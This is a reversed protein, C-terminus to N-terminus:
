KPILITHTESWTPPPTHGEAVLNFVNALIPSLLLKFHKYFAYTFGDPGPASSPQKDNIAALIQSTHIPLALTDTDTKPLSPIYNSLPTNFLPTFSSWQDRFHKAAYTLIEDIDKSTTSDSPNTSSTPTSHH